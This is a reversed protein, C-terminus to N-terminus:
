TPERRRLHVLTEVSDTRPFLDLQTCNVIVFYWCLQKLDRVLAEHGCSIILVHQFNEGKVAMQIVQADLGQRPPDVLLINYTEEQEVTETKNRRQNQQQRAWKGANGHVIQVLAMTKGTTSSDPGNISDSGGRTAGTSGSIGNLKMNARGADVLRQDLEIAQISELLGSKALAITHAGCGCYMELLRCSSSADKGIAAIRDLMWTLARCMVFANPHFFATEPKQYHVPISFTAQDRNQQQHKQLLSVEWSGKNNSEHPPYLFITDRLYNGAVRESSSEKASLFVNKSRGHVQTLHILQCVRQAEESWTEKDHLPNDYNLTLICDSIWQLNEDDNAVASSKNPDERDPFDYGSWSAAFALSALNPNVLNPFKESANLVETFFHQMALQIRPNAVPFFPIGTLAVPEGKHRMAYQYEYQREDDLEEADAENKKTEEHLIQFSCKCRYGITEDETQCPLSQIECLADKKVYEALGQSAKQLKSVSHAVADDGIQAHYEPLVGAQASVASSHAM